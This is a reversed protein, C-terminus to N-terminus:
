RAIAGIAGCEAGFRPHDFRLPLTGDFSVVDMGVWDDVFADVDILSLKVLEGPLLTLGEVGVFREHTSVSAFSQGAVREDFGWALRVRLEPASGDLDFGGGRARVRCVMTADHLAAGKAGRATRAERWRARAQDDNLGTREGARWRELTQEAGAGRRDSAPRPPGVLPLPPEPPPLAPLLTSRHPSSPAPVDTADDVDDVTSDQPAPEACPLGAFSAALTRSPWWVRLACAGHEGLTCSRVQQDLLLSGLWQAFRQQREAERALAATHPAARRAVEAQWTAEDLVVDDFMGDSFTPADMLFADPRGALIGLPVTVPFLTVNVLGAIALGGLEFLAGSLGRPADVAPGAPVKLAVLPTLTVDTFSPTSEGFTGLTVLLGPPGHAMVEVEYLDRVLKGEFSLPTVRRLEVEAGCAEHVAFAERPPPARTTADRPPSVSPATPAAAREIGATPWLAPEPTTSTSACAAAFWAFLVAAARM